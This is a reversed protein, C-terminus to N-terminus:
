FQKLLDQIVNFWALNHSVNRDAIRKRVDDCNQIM